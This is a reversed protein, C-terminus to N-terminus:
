SFLYKKDCYECYISIPYLSIENETEDGIIFRMSGDIIDNNNIKVVLNTLGMCLNYNDTDKLFTIKQTKDSLIGNTYIKKILNTLYKTDKYEIKLEHKM